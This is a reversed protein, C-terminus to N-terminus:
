APKAEGYYTFKPAAYPVRDAINSVMANLKPCHVAAAKQRRDCCAICVHAYDSNPGKDHRETGTTRDYRDPQQPVDYRRTFEWIDADTWARLPFLADPGIGNNQKVDVHLTVKGAIQDEDSSKHGILVVDWPYNFNGTPRQLVDKLGCLFKRGPEPPLINKPLLLVGGPLPGIQYHNTFAMISEGEWLTVALPAYDFTTLGFESIIREAFAYKSPWWPDRYFIVPFDLQMRRLIWLLVM